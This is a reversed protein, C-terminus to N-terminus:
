VKIISVFKILINIYITRKLREWNNLSIKLVWGLRGLQIIFYILHFTNHSIKLAALKLYISIHYKFLFPLILVFHELFPFNTLKLSWSLMIVALSFDVSTCGDNRQCYLNCSCLWWIKWRITSVPARRSNMPTMCRARVLAMFPSVHPQQYTDELCDCSM